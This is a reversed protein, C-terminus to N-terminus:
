MPQCAPRFFARAMKGFRAPVRLAALLQLARLLPVRDPM